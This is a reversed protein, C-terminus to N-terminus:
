HPRGPRRTRGDSGLGPAVVKVAIVDQEPRSLDIFAADPYGAAVLLISIATSGLDAPQVFVSQYQSWRIAPIHPPLPMARGMPACRAQSPTRVRVDDRAGSIETLRSQAAEVVSQLLAKEAVPHCGWGLACRWGTLGAAGDIIECTLVPLAVVAPQRYIAMGLGRERLRQRLDAFWEFRISDLDFSSLARAEASTSRWVRDADREIVELLGKTVANELNFHAALGDSSRDLKEDGALTSDMCVVDFPVWIRGSGVIRRASTWARVANTCPRARRNRAFDGITPAREAPPLDAFASWFRPARVREAHDSEVAEMLAGIKAGTASLGKGQHVSLARGWPRVAQFVPVGICDLGTVDALRTVGCAGGARLARALDALGPVLTM